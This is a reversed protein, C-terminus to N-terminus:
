HHDLSDLSVSLECLANLNGQLYDRPLLACLDHLCDLEKWLFKVAIRSVSRNLYLVGRALTQRSKTDFVLGDHVKHEEFYKQVRYVLTHSCILHVLEDIAWVVQSSTMPQLSLSGDM